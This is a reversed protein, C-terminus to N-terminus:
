NYLGYFLNWLVSSRPRIVRLCEIAETPEMGLPCLGTVLAYRQREVDALKVCVFILLVVLALILSFRM